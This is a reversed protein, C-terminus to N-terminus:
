YAPLTAQVLQEATVEPASRLAARLTSADFTRDATAYLYGFLRHGDRLEGVTTEDGTTNTFGSAGRQCGPFAFRPTPACLDGNPPDDVLLLLGEGEGEIAVYKVYPYHEDASNFIARYGPIEPLYFTRGSAELAAVSEGVKVPRLTPIVAGAVVLAGLVAASVAVRPAKRGILWETGAGALAGGILFLVVSVADNPPSWRALALVAGGIRLTSWLLAGLTVLVRVLPRIRLAALVAAVVIIVVPTSVLMIMVAPSGHLRPEPDVLRSSALSYPVAALAGILVLARGSRHADDDALPAHSLRETTTTTSMGVCHLM